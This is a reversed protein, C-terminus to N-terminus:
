QDQENASAAFLTRSTQLLQLNHVWMTGKGHTQYVHELDSLVTKLKDKYGGNPINKKELWKKLATAKIFGYNYGFLNPFFFSFPHTLYSDTLM